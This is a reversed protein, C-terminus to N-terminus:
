RLTTSPALAYASINDKDKNKRRKQFSFNYNRNGDENKRGGLIMYLCSFLFNSLCSNYMKPNVGNLKWIHRIHVNKDFISNLEFNAKEKVLTVAECPKTTSSFSAGRLCSVGQGAVVLVDELGVRSQYVRCDKNFECIDSVRCEINGRYSILIVNM